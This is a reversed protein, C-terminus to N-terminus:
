EVSMFFRRLLGPQSPPDKGQALDSLAPLFGHSLSGEVEARNHSFLVGIGKGKQLGNQIINVCHHFM